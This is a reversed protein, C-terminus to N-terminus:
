NAKSTLSEDYAKQQEAIVEQQTKTMSMENLKEFENLEGKIHLCLQNLGSITKAANDFEDFSYTIRTNILFLASSLFDYVTIKADYQKKDEIAQTKLYTKEVQDSM